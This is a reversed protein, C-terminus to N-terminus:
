RYERLRQRLGLLALGAALVTLVPIAVTLGSVSSTADNAARLFRAQAASIQRQLNVNPRDALAASSALSIAPRVLGANELATIQGTRARYASFDTMFQRASAGTRTQGALANLESLPGNHATLVGMVRAFDIPDTEDSGRNVLALSEDSQARALLVRTASLVEVSDSAHRASALASQEGLMGIVAWVSVGALVVTAAVMLPNLVRRSIRTLYSQAWVLLGMAVVVALALVVLAATATGTGYDDSLRRAEAALLRDAAPLIPHTSSSAQESVGTLLASALRLYAAGIPLGQRNNARASEILGAYVPVQEIITRVAGRAEPDASADQTLTALAASAATLDQLYLARRAPPELGGTLFTTAATANADSLATILHVAQLLLPETRTRAAEAAQARSREATTAIVGFCTAGAVVLISVLVLKGPTTTARARLWDRISAARTRRHSGSLAAVPAV